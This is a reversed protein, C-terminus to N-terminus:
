ISHCNYRLDWLRHKYYSKARQYEEDKMVGQKQNGREELWKTIARENACDNPIIAVEDPVRDMQYTSCGTLFLLILAIRM